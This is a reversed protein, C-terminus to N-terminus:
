RGNRDLVKLARYLNETSRQDPKARRAILDMQAKVILELQDKSLMELPQM